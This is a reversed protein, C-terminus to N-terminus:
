HRGVEAYRQKEPPFDIRVDLRKGDSGRINSLGEYQLLEINEADYTLFIPAVVLRLLSAPQIKIRIAPREFVRNKEVLEAEFSFVRGESAVAMSFKQEGNSLLTGLRARVYLDFGSDCVFEASVKVTTEKLAAGAKERSYLRYGGAEHKAGELYGDRQDVLEFDPAFAHQSYDMTKSAIPKDQADRYDTVHETILDGRLRLRHNETYLLQGDSRDYAFGIIAAQQEAPVESTAQAPSTPLGAALALLVIVGANITRNLKNM